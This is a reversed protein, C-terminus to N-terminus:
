RYIGRFYRKLNEEDQSTRPKGYRLSDAYTPAADEDYIFNRGDYYMPNTRKELGKVDFFGLKNSIEQKVESQYPGPVFGNKMKDVFIREEEPTMAAQGYYKIRDNNYAQIQKQIAADEIDSKEKYYEDLERQAESIKDQVYQQNMREKKKSQEYETVEDSFGRRFDISRKDSAISSNYKGNGDTGFETFSEMNIKPDVVFEVEPLTQGTGIREIQLAANIGGQQSEMFIISKSKPDYEWAISHGAGKPRWVNILGYHSSNLDNNFEKKMNDELIDTYSRKHGIKVEDYNSDDEYERQLNVTRLTSDYDQIWRRRMDPSAGNPINGANVDLGKRRLIYTLACGTCNNSYGDNNGTYNSNVAARDELMSMQRTKVKLGLVAAVRKVDESPPQSYTTSMIYREETDYKRALMGQREVLGKDGTKDYRLFDVGGSRGTTGYGKRRRAKGLETWTGDPNQYNREGWHMGKRGSHYLCDYSFRESHKIKKNLLANNFVKRTVTNVSALGARGLLYHITDRGVVTFGLATTSYLSGAVLGTLTASVIAAGAAVLAPMVYPKVAEATKKVAKKVKEGTGKRRREKGLETWTGDENQYRRVGRQM